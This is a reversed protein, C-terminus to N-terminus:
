GHAFAEELVDCAAEAGVAVVNCEVAAPLERVSPVCPHGLIETYHPNVAFIEGGYGCDRLNAIVNTGRGGRQSAGIVAIAKPQLLRPMAATLPAAGARSQGGVM